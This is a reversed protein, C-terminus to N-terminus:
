KEKYSFIFYWFLTFFLDFVPLVPMASFDGISIRYFDGILGKFPQSNGTVQEEDLKVILADDAEFSANVSESTSDTPGKEKANDEEDAM